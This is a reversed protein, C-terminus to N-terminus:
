EDDGDGGYGMADLRRREEETPGNMSESGRSGARFRRLEERLARVREPDRASLDTREHPDLALDYLEIRGEVDDEILKEHGRRIMRKRDVEQQGALKNNQDAEAFFPREPLSGGAFLPSVDLGDMPARAAVGMLARLTPAVDVGHVPTELVRGAPVGPGALIWPVRLLEQYQTRGHLVSGHEQFEEGHDSTLAFLTDQVLGQEELWAMFGGLVDDFTRIEADYLERLFALDAEGLQQGRNRVGQLQQTRGDLKGDYPQVFAARHEAKPTWDTHADYFHLFLFFPRAPDRAALLERATDIVVPGMNGTRLQGEKDTFTETLYEFREFGQSLQFQPAGLNHSNVVAFTQFGAAQFEEALTVTEAPLRTEHSKVGHRSPYLGTLMTAHSPLTWPAPATVDVFRAGRAALADITPSTARGHGYCGLHDPRLTDVSVLVLNRARPGAPTEAGCAAWLPALLALLLARVPAHMCRSPRRM